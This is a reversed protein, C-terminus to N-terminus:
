ASAFEGRSMLDIYKSYTLSTYKSFFIDLYMLLFQSLAHKLGSSGKHFERLHVRNPFRKVHPCQMRCRGRNKEAYGSEETTRPITGYQYALKGQDAECVQVTTNRSESALYKGDPSWAVSYV